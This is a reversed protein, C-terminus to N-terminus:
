KVTCSFFGAKCHVEVSGGKPVTVRATQDLKGHGSFTAALSYTGAPVSAGSSTVTYPKGDGLLEISVADGTLVVRGKSSPAPKPDAKPAPSEAPAPEPAADHSPAPVPAVAPEPAPVEAPAPDHPPPATIVPLTGADDTAPAMWWFAGLGLAGVLLLAGGGILLLVLMGGVGAAAYSVGSSPAAAPAPAPLHLSPTPDGTLPGSRVGSTTSAWPAADERPVVSAVVPPAPPTAEVPLPEVAAVVPAVVVPAPEEVPAAAIVPEPEAEPTVPRREFRTHDEPEFSEDEDDQLSQVPIMQLPPPEPAPPEPAVVPEAVVPAAEVPAPPPPKPAISPSSLPGGDVGSTLSDGIRKMSGKDWARSRDLQVRGCWVQYLTDVDPIRDDISVAMAGEIADAMRDPLSPVLETIRPYDAQRVRDLMDFLDEADYPRQGACLEYLMVGLSYVDARADVGRTNRFQEPAMYAPTGMVAGTRTQNSAASSQLSKALGFDTIKPLYGEDAHQLMVNAPKLDRHIMGQTHAARVGKLIGRAIDDIQDLTPRYNELLTALSPGDVYEMVLGPMGAVTVQDIVSVINQHRLEAQLKGESLIRGALEPHTVHMVKLAYPINLDRHRIRYVSAMGGRGILGEVVFKDVATGVALDM